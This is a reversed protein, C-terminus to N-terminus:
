GANVKAFHFVDAPLPHSLLWRIRMPREGEHDQYTMPGAYTYAEDSTKRLFLHVTSGRERHHVYRRGTPSEARTQSQSEWQFLWPTIARDQYMTTPSFDRENKDITVLFVDAREEAFWKVGERFYASVEQGFAALAEGRTYRAHLRLPLHSVEPVVPTVRHIRDYLIDTVALLEERRGPLDWLRALHTELASLPKGAHFASNLMALLRRQAPDFDALRPARPRRLLDRLFTLRDPDDVHLLRGIAKRIEEDAKESTVPRTDLGAARRLRAWGGRTSRYLDELELGTADLFEPLTVDGMARLEAALDPWRVNLAQRINALVIGSVERDLDIACGPPLTPFGAKIERELRGREIGTLAKFRKDFRFERRQRGVFDLVTLVAKDRTLRLGRGLQQLFVTASETPRLFLVTDIEPVDVGENFLDVTFIAKIRGDRLGRLAAERDQRSTRSTVARARIGRREFEREMYEAHDISVCFGVARMGGLDGLKDELAEVIMAVRADLGTYLNTLQAVDYGAGRRWDVQSLDTDDHVGFYHFPVLLGRELAEWLRLEVTPRGGDFWHLIDEGDAREPTATLGLLIKPRLRDLLRAYSAAAAHHFEDVVVMDFRGPELEPLQSLSQISGFVHRWEGPRHGDVLLEGFAGDRLVHRFTGLSQQLIEKRHAVFLLSDVIRRERLRRYDLAAVITKGTGTAMVVLNRWHGHVLRAADLEELIERQYPYPQVDIRTIPPPDAAPGGREATLARALRGSDEYPEFSPDNWYDEFTAAFTDILHPQEARAIRVNWEVGDLLATHSLNSSGVYATDLRSRRHFLWAKAHLRTRQTDYSVKVEAGMAALREVAGHDTAGMYTTTIVRLRGGRRFFDRLADELLRLGRWKIFACLLDVQDATALEKIVERGIQPQDRGNVLLASMSLPIDPRPPFAVSGDPLRGDAIGLLMRHGDAVLEGDIGADPVIGAIARGIANAAAVQRALKEAADGGGQRAARLARRTMRALHRVLVEEADVADLGGQQVLEGDVEELRRRLETTVVHEYVGPAPETM